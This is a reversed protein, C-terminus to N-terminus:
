PPRFYIPVKGTASYIIAENYKLEAVIQENTLSTLPHHTWTHLALQHGANFASIILNPNQIANSGVIFLTSKINASALKALLQATGYMGNPDVTPGDDLIFSM